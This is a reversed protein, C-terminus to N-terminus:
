GGQFGIKQGRDPSKPLIGLLFLHIFVPSSQIQYDGCKLNSWFLPSMTATNPTFIILRGYNSLKLLLKM